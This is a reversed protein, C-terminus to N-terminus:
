VARGEPSLGDIEEKAAPYGVIFIRTLTDTELPDELSEILQTSFVERTLKDPEWPEVLGQYFSSRASIAKVLDFADFYGGFFNVFRVEDRIRQDQAAVMAM